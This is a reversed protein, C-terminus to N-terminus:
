LLKSLFPSEIRERNWLLDGARFLGIYVKLGVLKKIVKLGPVAYVLNQGTGRGGLM